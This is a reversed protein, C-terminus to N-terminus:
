LKAKLEKKKEIDVRLYKFMGHIVKMRKLNHVWGHSVMYGRRHVTPIWPVHEVFVDRMKKYLETRQPGIPTKLAKAYLADFEKNKFNSNNPGPSENPGFFLQFMNQPDPYDAGWALGFIQAKKNRIRDTFQPWTNQVINVKVGIKEWQQSLYEAMQRGTSGGSDSFELVPLGKGEPYGAKALFEKAKSVNFEKNPNKFEPDYGDMGPAIPSHAVVGRNNYFKQLSTNTDYALALARRLNLNKGLLPDDMNFGIYVIEPDDHIQLQAGKNALEPKLKGGEVYSDFNDKPILSCDTAGTMFNLWRPQDEVIELFTLTDIFPLPKGADALLGSDQDGPEGENPYTEGHWTPNRVLTVKNGRIWSKFMFPGTGVPHNLFEAGYKAVAEKPVVASYSMTLIYNLQFYPQTLKIVLTHPDPASFGEVPTDYTM